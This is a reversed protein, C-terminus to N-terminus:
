KGERILGKKVTRLIVTGKSDSNDEDNERFEKQVITLGAAALAEEFDQFTRKTGSLVFDHNIDYYSSAEIDSVILFTGGPKLLNAVNNISTKLEVCKLAEFLYLATVVDFQQLEGKVLPNPQSVDAYCIDKICERMHVKIGNRYAGKDSSYVVIINNIFCLIYDLTTLPTKCIYVLYIIFGRQIRHLSSIESFM